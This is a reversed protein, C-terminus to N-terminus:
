GHGGEGGHAGHRVHGGDLAVHHRGGLDAVLDGVGGVGHGEGDSVGAEVALPGGLGLDDGGSGVGVGHGPVGVGVSAVGVGGDGEAGAGTSVGEGLAQVGDGLAGVGNGLAGHDGNGLPGGLGLSVSEVGGVGVGVHGEARAAAQVRDGLAQVGGGLAVDGVVPVAVVAQPVGVPALGGVGEM